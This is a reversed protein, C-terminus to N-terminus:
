TKPSAYSEERTVPPPHVKVNEKQARGVTSIILRQHSVSTGATSSPTSSSSRYPYGVAGTLDDPHLQTNETLAM